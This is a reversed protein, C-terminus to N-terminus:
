QIQATNLILKIAHHCQILAQKHMMQPKNQGKM